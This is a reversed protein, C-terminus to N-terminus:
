RPLLQECFRWFNGRRKDDCSYRVTNLDYVTSDGFNLYLYLNSTSYCQHSFLTTIGNVTEVDNVATALKQEMKIQEAVYFALSDRLKQFDISIFSDMLVPRNYSFRATSGEINSHIKNLQWFSNPPSFCTRYYLSFNLEKSSDLRSMISKLDQSVHFTPMIPALWTQFSDKIQIQFYQKDSFHSGLTLTYDGKKINDLVLIWRNLTSDFIAGEELYENTDNSLVVYYFWHINNSNTDKPLIIKLTNEPSHYPKELYWTAATERSCALLVCCIALYYIM